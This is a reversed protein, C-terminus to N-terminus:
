AFLQTASNSKSIQRSELTQSRRLDQQQIHMTMLQDKAHLQPPSRPTSM